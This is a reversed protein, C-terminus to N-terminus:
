LPLIPSLIISSTVHFFVNEPTRMNKKKANNSHGQQSPTMAIDEVNYIYTFITIELFNSHSFDKATPSKWSM